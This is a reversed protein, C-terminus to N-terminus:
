AATGTVGLDTSRPVRASSVAGAAELAARVDARMETATPYRDERRFELAHDVIDAFAQTVEPLVTRLKPAPTTAMRVVLGLTHAADHIRKNSALQFLISGLAYIDTRGDIEGVHGAAQEPSMYSATGIAMGAITQEQTELFR